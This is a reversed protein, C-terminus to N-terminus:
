HRYNSLGLYVDPHKKLWEILYATTEGNRVFINKHYKEGLFGTGLATTLEPEEWVLYLSYLVKFLQEDSDHPLFFHGSLAVAAHQAKDSASAAATRDLSHQCNTSHDIDLLRLLLSVTILADMGALTKMSLLNHCAAAILGPSEGLTHLIESRMGYFADIVALIARKKMLFDVESRAHDLEQVLTHLQGELPTNPIQRFVRWTLYCLAEANLDKMQARTEEPTPYKNLAGLPINLHYATLAYVHEDAQLVQGHVGEISEHEEQLKDLEHWSFLSLFFLPKEIVNPPREELLAVREKEIGLLFLTQALVQSLTLLEGCYAGLLLPAKPDSTDVVKRQNVVHHSSSKLHPYGKELLATYHIEGAETIKDITYTAFRTTLALPPRKGLALESTIPPRTLNSLLKHLMEERESVELTAIARSLVAPDEFAEQLENYSPPTIGLEQATKEVAKFFDSKRTESGFFYDRLEEQMLLLALVTQFKSETSRTKKPILWSFKQYLFNQLRSSWSLARFTWRKQLASDLRLEKAFPESLTIESTKRDGDKLTLTISGIEFLHQEM